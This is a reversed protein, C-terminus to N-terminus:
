QLDHAAHGALKGLLELESAKRYAVERQALEERLRAEEAQRAGARTPPLKSRPSGSAGSSSSASGLM